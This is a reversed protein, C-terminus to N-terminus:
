IRIREQFGHARQMRMCSDGCEGGIKRVYNISKHRVCYFTIIATPKNNPSFAIQMEAGFRAAAREIGYPM